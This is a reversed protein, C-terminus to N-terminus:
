YYFIIYSNTKPNKSIVCMRDPNSLLYGNSDEKILTWGTLGQMLVLEQKALSETCEFGASICYDLEDFLLIFTINNEQYILSNNEADFLCNTREKLVESKSKGISYICDQQSYGVLSSILLIIILLKKM